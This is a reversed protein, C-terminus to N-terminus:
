RETEIHFDGVQRRYVVGDDTIISVSAYEDASFLALSNSLGIEIVGEDRYPPPGENINFRVMTPKNPDIMNFIYGLVIIQPVTM